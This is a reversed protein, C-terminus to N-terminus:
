ENIQSVAVYCLRDRYFAVRQRSNAAVTWIYEHLGEEVSFPSPQILCYMHVESVGQCSKWRGLGFYLCSFPAPRQM